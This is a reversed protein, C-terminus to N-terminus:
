QQGKQVDDRRGSSGIGILAESGLMIREGFIEEKM